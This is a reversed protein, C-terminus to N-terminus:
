LAGLLLFAGVGGGLITALSESYRGAEAPVCHLIRM